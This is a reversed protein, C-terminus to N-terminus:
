LTCCLRNRTMLWPGVLLDFNELQIKSKQSFYSQAIRGTYWSLPLLSKKFNNDNIIISKNRNTEASVADVFFIAIWVRRPNLFRLNINIQTFFIAFMFFQQVGSRQDYYVM